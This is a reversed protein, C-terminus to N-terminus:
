TVKTLPNVTIPGFMNKIPSTNLLARGVRRLEIVIGEVMVNMPKWCNTYKNKSM